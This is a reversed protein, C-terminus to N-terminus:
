KSLYFEMDWDTEWMSLKDLNRQLISGDDAGELTLYLATDDAFLRVQSTINDSLDNIYVLFLIPGQVSGQPVGYTM